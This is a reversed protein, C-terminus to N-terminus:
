IKGGCNYEELYTLHELLAECFWESSLTSEWLSYLTWHWVCMYSYSSRDNPVWLLCKSNHCAMILFFFLVIIMLMNILISKEKLKYSLKYPPPPPNPCTGLWSTPPISAKSQNIVKLRSQTQIHWFLPQNNVNTYFTCIKSQHEKSCGM